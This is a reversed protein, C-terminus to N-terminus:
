KGLAWGKYDPCYASTAYAVMSGFNEASMGQAKFADVMDKTFELGSQGRDDYAKMSSCMAKLTSVVDNDPSSRLAPVEERVLAAVQADPM